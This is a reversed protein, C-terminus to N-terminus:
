GLRRGIFRGRGRRGSFQGNEVIVEGTSIVTDIRGQLTRGAYPSWDVKMHLQDPDVDWVADPDFVLLDADSGPAILGKQPYLGWVKALSTSLIDVLRPLSLRDRVVGETYLVPLRLEISPLGHPIGIYSGGGSRKQALDWATHDSTVVSVVDDQIGRWLADVDSQKRIPPSCVYNAGDPRRYVEDNLTLYHTCTETTVPMGEARAGRFEEVGEAITLHFGYYRVGTLRAFLLARRIAELEIFRPRTEPFYRAEIRGADEYEDGLREAIANNETHVAIIGNAREVRRMVEVLAGDDMMFGERGFAMFVKVSPMGSRIVADLQGLAEPSPDTMLMHLSYDVVTNPDAERRRAEVVSHLDSGKPQVAFDIYTTTGGFAAAVSGDYFDERTVTGRFPTNFHVHSDILGPLVYKGSADVVRDADPMAPPRGIAVIRGEHVAVDAERIGDPDVVRGGRVVLDVNQSQFRPHLAAVLAPTTAIFQRRNM